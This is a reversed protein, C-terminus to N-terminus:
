KMLAPEPSNPFRYGVVSERHCCPHRGSVQRGSSCAHPVGGGADIKGGEAFTPPQKALRRRRTSYADDQRHTRRSGTFGFFRPGNWHGGTIARAVKSLSRYTKGDWAFGEELAM